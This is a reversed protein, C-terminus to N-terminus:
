QILNAAQHVKKLRNQGRRERGPDFASSFGLTMHGVRSIQLVERPKDVLLAFDSIKTM